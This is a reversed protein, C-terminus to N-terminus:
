HVWDSEYGQLFAVAEGDALVHEITVPRGSEDFVVRGVGAGNVLRQHRYRGSYQSPRRQRIRMRRRRTLWNLPSRSAFLWRNVRDFRTLLKPPFSNSLGSSTIQWIEPSNKVRRLLIDSAFAYHVDGSLIVFHQPTRRHRFINLIAHASGSHAMWNEADVMLSLGCWTAIRQVVEILKVGFIPASSVLIVAPQDVLHQQTDALSEWDMLGSPWSAMHDSHWRQTRTDMVVVRPLCDIVYNWQEFKLLGGILQDHFQDNGHLHFLKRGAQLLEDDFREPANGWGQFLLYGILANGIIRRAMPQEYASEEWARSLNWDDTIDHDDFIMYCPVNAMVRQVRALGAVFQDILRVQKQYLSQHAESLGGPLESTNVASWLVPSWCLLYQAIVEGLTLLHNEANISTFIPKRAGSFLINRLGRADRRAPLLDSRHYYGPDRRLSESSLSDSGPLTEDFLGLQQVVQTIASLYPGAVDDTYVQDGTLMLMAPQEAAGTARARALMDDVCLLGDIGDYHPKRCSGHLLQDIRSKLVFGPRAQSDYSISPATKNLWLVEGDCELGVDYTIWEDRPLDAALEITIAHLFAHTGLDFRGNHECPIVDTAVATDGATRTFVRCHMATAQSTVLNLVIQRSSVRRLLPGALLLPLPSANNM